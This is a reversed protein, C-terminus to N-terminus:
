NLHEDCLRQVRARRLRNRPFEQAREDCRDAREYAHGLVSAIHRDLAAVVKSTVMAVHQADLSSVFQCLASEERRAILRTSVLPLSVLLRPIQSLAFLM